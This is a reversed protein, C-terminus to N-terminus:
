DAIATPPQPPRRSQAQARLAEGMELAIASLAPFRAVDEPPATLLWDKGSITLGFSAEPKMGFKAVMLDVFRYARFDASNVRIGEPAPCQLFQATLKDVAMCVLDLHRLLFAADLQDLKRDPPLRRQLEGQCTPDLAAFRVVWRDPKYVPYGLDTLLHLTTIPGIGRLATLADFLTGTSDGTRYGPVGLHRRTESVAVATDGAALQRLAAAATQQHLRHLNAWHQGLLRVRDLKLRPARLGRLYAQDDPLNLPDAFLGPIGRIREAVETARQALQNAYLPKDWSRAWSTTAPQTADLATGDLLANCQRVFRDRGEPGGTCHDRLLEFVQHVV